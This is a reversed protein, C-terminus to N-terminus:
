MGLSDVANDELEALLAPDPIHTRLRMSGVLVDLPVVGLRARSAAQRGLVLASRRRVYAQDASEHRLLTTRKAGLIKDPARVAFRVMVRALVVAGRVLM